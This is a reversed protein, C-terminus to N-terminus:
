RAGYVCQTVRAVTGAVVHGSGAVCNTIQNSQPISSNLGLRTINWVWAQSQHEPLQGTAATVLAAGLPVSAVREDAPLGPQDPIVVKTVGWVSLARRVAAVDQSTFRVFYPIGVSANGIATTGQRLPSNAVYVAGPGGVEAMKYQFGSVSQWTMPSEGAIYQIPLVLLVQNSDLHPAVSRFWEPLVIPQTALPITQSVYLAIPFLAIVTVGLGAVPGSWGGKRRRDNFPFADAVPSQPRSQAIDNVVHDVILALCVAVAFYTVLVYRYPIVNQVLAVSGLPHLYSLLAALGAIGSFLWLRADHRWIALGAILVVVLPIGVYQPSIYAGHYGVPNTSSVHAAAPLFFDRLLSGDGEFYGNWVPGSFSAPGRLAFWAPYALLLASTIGAAIVGTVGHGFRQRLQSPNRVVTGVVIMLVASAIFGVTMLLVETGIFFQVVLLVGLGVGIAVPRRQQRFLLEDVCLVCLPPIAVLAFDVWGSALSVLVFPSFGYVFGGIAAAPTWTTWRRLLVYMSLASLAPALTLAVNVTAIPGFVWTIPAFVLGIATSSTDALLNIGHPHYLYDTYFPSSGHALARAVWGFSWTFKSTDGCGCITTHAPNRSWVNWWLLVSLVLYGVGVVVLTLRPPRGIQRDDSTEIDPSVDPTLQGIVTSSGLLGIFADIYEECAM